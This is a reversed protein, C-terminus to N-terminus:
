FSILPLGYSVANRNPFQAAFKNQPPLTSTKTKAMKNRELTLVNLLLEVLKGKRKPMADLNAIEGNSIDACYTSPHAFCDIALLNIHLAFYYPSKQMVIFLFCILGPSIESWCVNIQKYFIICYVDNFQTNTNFCFTM